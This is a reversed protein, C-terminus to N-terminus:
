NDGELYDILDESDNFSRMGFLREVGLRVALVYVRIKAQYVYGRIKSITGNAVDVVDCPKKCSNCVNYIPAMGHNSIGIIPHFDSYCCKSIQKADKKSM